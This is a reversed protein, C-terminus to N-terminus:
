GDPLSLSEPTQLYHQPTPPWRPKPATSPPTPRPQSTPSAAPPAPSTSPTTSRLQWWRQWHYNIRPPPPNFGKHTHTKCTKVGTHTPTKHAPQFIKDTSHNRAQRYRKGDHSITLAPCRASAVLRYRSVRCVGPKRM